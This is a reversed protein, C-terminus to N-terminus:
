SRGGKEAPAAVAKQVQDPFDAIEFFQRIEIVDGPEAPCRRAWAVAEDMNALEVIWFGGVVEKSEMYPGDTVQPAGKSFAVRAGKAPPHLGDLALLAGASGLAENFKQMKLIGDLPPAFDAGARENAPTGPQYVRPIMMMMFRMQM